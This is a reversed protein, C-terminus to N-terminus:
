EGMLSPRKSSIIGLFFFQAFLVASYLGWFLYKVMTESFGLFASLIILFTVSLSPVIVTMLMYFLAIPNLQSGYEGIQIFQEESITHIVEKLVDSIDSGSKMGNVLQWMARRIFPSPNNETLDKLADAQNKGSSIEKVAKGFENSLEGYNGNAISVMVNFFPVGANVQILINRLGFLLNREMSRIRRSKMLKPYNLQQLFVFFSIGAMVALTVLLPSFDMSVKSKIGFLFLFLLSGMFLIFLFTAYLCMALYEEVGFPIRAQVLDTSVGRFHKSLRKSVGKFLASGRQIRSLPLIAFPINKM